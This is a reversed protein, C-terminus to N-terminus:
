CKDYKDKDCNKGISIGILLLLFLSKTCDDFEDFCPFNPKPHHCDCFPPKPSCKPCCCPKPPLPCPKPKPCPRCPNCDPRQWTKSYPSSYYYGYDNYFEDM